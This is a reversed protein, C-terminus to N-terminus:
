VGRKKFYGVRNRATKDKGRHGTGKFKMCACKSCGGSTLTHLSRSHSCQCKLGAKTRDSIRIREAKAVTALIGIVVEKFMGVTDLYMETYSKYGINLLELEHLKQLTYLVGSRSFRDFAWFLLIDFKKQHAERFLEDWAPRSDESGTIIDVYEKYVAYGSKECYERMQILQNEAEQKDTSVRAYIAVKM